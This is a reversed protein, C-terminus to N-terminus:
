DATLSSSQSSSASAPRGSPRTMVCRGTGGTQMRGLPRSPCPRPPGVLVVDGHLEHHPPVRETQKSGKAHLLWM